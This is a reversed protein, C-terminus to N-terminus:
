FGGHAFIGKEGDRYNSQFIWQQFNHGCNNGTGKLILRSPNKLLKKLEANDTKAQGTIEIQKYLSTHGPQQDFLDTDLFNFTADFTFTMQGAPKGDQSITLALQSDSTKGAVVWSIGSGAPGFGQEMIGKIELNMLQDKLWGDAKGSYRSYTGPDACCACAHAENIAAFQGALLALSFLSPLFLQKANPRNM